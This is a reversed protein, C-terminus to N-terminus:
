VAVCQGSKSTATNPVGNNTPTSSNGSCNLSGTITNGSIKPVLTTSNNVSLSGNVSNGSVDVGGTNGILTTNRLSNSACGLVAPDGILLFSTNNQLLTQGNITSGCISVTGAGNSTVGGGITSNSVSVGTSPGITLSGTINADKICWTGGSANVSTGISGTLTHSCTIILEFVAQVKHGAPDTATIYVFQPVTVPVASWSWTGNNNNVVQGISATLTVADGDPDSVTGTMAALGNFASVVNVSDADINPKENGNTPPLPGKPLVILESLMGLGHHFFIHCHMLWPGLGGGDTVGDQMKRDELKVKFNLTYGPPIDQQDRFEHLSGWLFDPGGPKTLSVPQISFGHLHFPHHANTSNLVQLDLTDGIRAYRANAARAQPSVYNLADDHTTAVGDISPGASTTFTIPLLPPAKGPPVKNPAFLTPDLLDGTKAGLIPVLQGTFSRLQTATSITYPNAQTGNIALHAVPVTPIVSWGQPNGGGGAGVRQFDETWLTAVGSAGQPIAAVVDARDGPPLLIEGEDYKTPYGGPMGGELIAQDLIGGEGGVRFLKILTGSSSTLRLRFYRTTAANVIQFRVGQGAMVPLLAANPGLAGPTSQSGARVGVNKGNTLVTQGEVVPPPPAGTKPQINPIDGAGFPVTPNGNNDIPKTACLDKPQPGPQATFQGGVWPPAGPFPPSGPVYTNTDENAGKCVTTDSLVLTRTASQPPLKGAGQLAAENPDTVIISGYMGKFVQNTSDHHHPHYWFIGPRPVTFKYLYQGGSPVANQTVPTGDSHNNLEVGHWHIGSKQLNPLQNQFHVIVTDGVKLRLEPGPITGNFTQAHAMVGNGIDVTAEKAILTTEFINPNPNTDVALPVDYPSAGSTARGPQAVRFMLYSALLATIAVGIWVVRRPARESM